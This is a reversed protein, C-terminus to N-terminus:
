VHSVFGEIPANYGLDSGLVTQIAEHDRSPFPGTVRGGVAPLTAFQRADATAKRMDAATIGGSRVYVVVTPNLDKSVFAAQANLEQTSEASAPLYSSADNKEAGQLKGALSGTAAIVLIWFVLVLYKARRGCPLAALRWGFAGNAARNGDAAGTDVAVMAERNIGTM